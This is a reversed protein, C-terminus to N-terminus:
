INYKIFGNEITIFKYKRSFIIDKKGERKIKWLRENSEIKIIRKYRHQAYYIQPCNSKYLIYLSYVQDESLEMSPPNLGSYSKCLDYIKDCHIYELLESIIDSFVEIDDKIYTKILKIQDIPNGIDHKYIDKKNFRDATIYKRIDIQDKFNIRREDNNLFNELFALFGEYSEYESLTWIYVNPDNGFHGSKIVNLYEEDLMKLYKEPIYLKKDGVIVEMCKKRFEMDDQKSMMNKFIEKYLIVDNTFSVEEALDQLEYEESLRPESYKSHTIEPKTIKYGESNYTIKTFAMGCSYECCVFEFKSLAELNYFENQEVYMWLEKMREAVIHKYKSEKTIYYMYLREYERSLSDKSIIEKVYQPDCYKDVIEFTFSSVKYFNHGFRRDFMYKEMDGSKHLYIWEEGKLRDKIYEIFANYSEYETMVINVKVNGFIRKHTSYPLYFKQDDLILEVSYKRYEEDHQDDFIYQQLNM